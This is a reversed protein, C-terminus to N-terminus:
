LITLYIVLMYLQIEKTLKYMLMKINILIKKYKNITMSYNYDLKDKWLILKIENNFQM